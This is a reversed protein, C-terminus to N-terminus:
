NISPNIIIYLIAQHTLTIRVIEFAHLDLKNETTETPGIKAVTRFRARIQDELFNRGVLRGM